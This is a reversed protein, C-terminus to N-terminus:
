RSVERRQKSGLYTGRAADYVRVQIVKGAQDPDVVRVHVLRPDQSPRYLIWSEPPAQPEIQSCSGSRPQERIPRGVKWLRCEGAPPLQAAPIGLPAKDDNEEIVLRDEFVVPASEPQGTAHGCGLVAICSIMTVAPTIDSSLVSSDELVFSM